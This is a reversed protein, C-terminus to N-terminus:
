NVKVRYQFSFGPTSVDLSPKLTGGLNLRFHTVTSDYGDGDPTPVYNFSSGNDNSFSISDVSSGLSVFSYTLGSSNPSSNDIFEIPGASMFDSVYLSNNNAIAQTIQTSNVDTSINGINSVNVSYTMVADPIAKPNVTGNIPDNEVTVQSDMSINPNGACHYFMSSPIIEINNDNNNRAWYFIYADNGTYEQIRFEIPTFGSSIPIRTLNQPSGATGHLGYFGVYNTDDIIAEIADDGDVGFRARNRNNTSYIYGEFIGLFYDDNTTFPNGSGNIDPYITQGQLYTSNARSDVLTQYTTANNLDSVPYGTIDFFRALLGPQPNSCSAPIGASSLVNINYTLTDNATNLDPLYGNINVPLTLNSGDGATVTVDINLPSSNTSPSIAAGYNCTLINGSLNCQWDTGTFTQYSLGNPITFAMTTSGPATSSSINNITLELTQDTGTIWTPTLNDSSNIALDTSCVDHAGYTLTHRTVPCSESRIDIGVDVNSGWTGTSGNYFQITLGGDCCGEAGIIELKHEGAALFTTGSLVDANNWNSGGWWLDENWREDLPVGNVYLGGGRGYDAGYRVGWTGSSPVTFLAQSYAIFNNSSGGQNANTISQFITPHSCQYGSVNDTLGDFLAKAEAYSSPDASSNRTHFKIRDQIYSPSPPMGSDESSVFQNGYYVFVNKSENAALNPLTVWVEAFQINSDWSAISFALPTLDDDSFIRLDRGDSSWNYQSDLTGGAGGTLTLKVQYDSLNFGSTETVTIQTRFPWDCSQRAHTQSGILILLFAIIFTYRM